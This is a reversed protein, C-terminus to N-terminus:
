LIRANLYLANLINQYYIFNYLISHLTGMGSVVNTNIQKEMPLYLPWAGTMVEM